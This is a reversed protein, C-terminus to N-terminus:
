ACEEYHYGTYARQPRAYFTSLLTNRVGSDPALIECGHWSQRDASNNVVFAYGSNPRFEFRRVVEFGNPSASTRRYLSTGLGIQDLNAPLFLQMTVVKELSDPHPGIGFGELDRYLTPRAYGALDPVESVAVGYRYMLDPALRAYVCRKVAEETLAALVGCWLSRCRPPFRRVREATLPFVQRSHYRAQPDRLGQSYRDSPPLHDLLSEYVDIPFLDELYMHSFPEQWVTAYEIRALLHDLVRTYIARTSEAM